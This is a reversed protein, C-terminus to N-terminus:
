RLLCQLLRYKKYTIFLVFYYFFLICHLQLCIITNKILTDFYNNLKNIDDIFLLVNNSYKSFM